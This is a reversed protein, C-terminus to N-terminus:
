EAALEVRPVEATVSAADNFDSPSLRIRIGALADSPGPHSIESQPVLRVDHLAASSDPHSALKWQVLVAAGLLAIGMAIKRKM